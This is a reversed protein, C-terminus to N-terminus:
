NRARGPFRNLRSELNREEADELAAFFDLGSRREVEDVTTAFHDLPAIAEDSNPVIAAFMTKCDGRRALVVKFAHTPVAVRGSGIVETQAAEFIAGTFVVVSDSEAAIRRVAAELQAWRGCNVRRPQPIVNSLLFTQRIAPDSFAFDAAPAMHGRTYGSNRYDADSASPGALARDRRFHSPRSAVRVLHSATLEYGVWLPVKRSSDHCLLFFSRDAFEHGPGSCAPLGFPLRQAHLAPLLALLLAATKCLTTVSYLDASYFM